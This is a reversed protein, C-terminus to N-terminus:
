LSIQPTSTYSWENKDESSYPSFHAVDRGPQNVGPLIIGSVWQTPRHTPRLIPIPATSFLFMEKKQRSHLEVEYRTWGTVLDSCRVLLLFTHHSPHFMPCISAFM